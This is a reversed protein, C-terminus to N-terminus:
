FEGPLDQEKVWDISRPTPDFAFIETKLEKILALDFDINSGVGVSYIISEPVIRSYDIVWGHDDGYLKATDIKSPIIGLRELKKRRYRQKSKTFISM